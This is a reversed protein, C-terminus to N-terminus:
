RYATSSRKRRIGAIDLLTQSLDLLSVPEKVVRANGAGAPKVVFPVRLVDPYLMFVKTWWPGAAM